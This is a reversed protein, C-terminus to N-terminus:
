NVHRGADYRELCGDEEGEGVVEGDWEDGM